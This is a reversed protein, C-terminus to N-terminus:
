PSLIHNMELGSWKIVSVFGELAKKQLEMIVLPHNDLPGPGWVSSWTSWSWTLLVPSRLPCSTHCRCWGKLKLWQTKPSTHSWPIVKGIRVSALGGECLYEKSNIFIYCNGMIHWSSRKNWRWALGKSCLHPFQPLNVCCTSPPNLIQVRGRHGARM